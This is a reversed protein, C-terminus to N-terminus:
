VCECSHLFVLNKLDCQGTVHLHALGEPGLILLEKTHAAVCVHLSEPRAQFTSQRREVHQLDQVLVVAVNWEVDAGDVSRM